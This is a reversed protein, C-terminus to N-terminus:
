PNLDRIWLDSEIDNDKAWTQLHSGIQEQIDSTQTAINARMSFYATGGQAGGSNTTIAVMHIFSGSKSRSDTERPKGVIESIKAILGERDPTNLAVHFMRATPWYVREGESVTAPPWFEETEILHAVNRLDALDGKALIEMEYRNQDPMTLNFTISAVYLNQTELQGTVEAIVGVRDPGRAQILLSRATADLQTAEIADDRKEDPM